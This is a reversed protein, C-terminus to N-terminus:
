GRDYPNELMSKFTDLANFLQLGESIREDISFKITVDGSESLRGVAIFLSGTGWDYLHHFVADGNVSGLNAIVASSHLPDANILARPLLGFKDLLSACFLVLRYLFMPMINLRDILRNFGTDSTSRVKLIKNDMKTQIDQPSEDPKLEVKVQSIAGEADVDKKMATSVILSTHTYRKGGLVFDNLFPHKVVTEKCVYLVYSFFRLQNEKLYSVLKESHIEVAYYVCASQRTPTIAAEVKQYADQPLRRRDPTHM